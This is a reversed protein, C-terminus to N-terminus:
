TLRNAAFAPQPESAPNADTRTNRRALSELEDCATHAASYQSPVSQTARKLTHPNDDYVVCAKISLPKTVVEPSM